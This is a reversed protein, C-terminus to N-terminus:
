VGQGIHRYSFAPLEFIDKYIPSMAIRFHKAYFTSKGSVNIRSLGQDRRCLLYSRITIPSSAKPGDGHRRCIASYM